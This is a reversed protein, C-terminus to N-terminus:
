INVIKGCKSCEYKRNMVNNIESTGFSLIGVIVRAAGEFCRETEILTHKTECGCDWCYKVITKKSM